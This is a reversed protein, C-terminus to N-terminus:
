NIREIAMPPSKGPETPEPEGAQRRRVKPRLREAHFDLGALRYLGYLADKCRKNTETAAEVEAKKTGLENQNAKSQPALRLLVEELAGAETELTTAVKAATAYLVAKDDDEQWAHKPDRLVRAFDRAAAVLLSPKVYSLRRDRLAAKAAPGGISKDVLFRVQQLRSRLQGALQDRQGRLAAADVLRSTYIEDIQLVGNGSLELLRGLLEQLLTVDPLTEGDRLLARLRKELGQQVQEKFERATAAFDIAEQHRKITTRFM